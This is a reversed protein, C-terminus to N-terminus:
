RTAGSAVAAFSAASIASPSFSSAAILAVFPMAETVGGSGFEAPLAATASAVGADAGLAGVVCASTRVSRLWTIGSAVFPM